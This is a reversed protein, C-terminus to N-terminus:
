IDRGRKGKLYKYREIWDAGAKYKHKKEWLIKRCQAGTGSKMDSSDQFGPVRPGQFM